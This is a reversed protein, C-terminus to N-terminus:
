AAHRTLFPSYQKDEHQIHKTLGDILLV